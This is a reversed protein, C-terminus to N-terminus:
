MDLGPGKKIVHGGGWNKIIYLKCIGIFQYAMKTKDYMWCRGIRTCQESDRFTCSTEVTMKFILPGPISGFIRLVTYSMGLALSCLKDPVVRFICLTGPIGSFGSFIISSLLLAIFLPLKHCNADCKGLRADVIDGDQDPGTLGKHICSCNYYTQKKEQSYKSFRCGAFCPSFYEVNDRGCVSSYLATSCRCHKNCPATLNVMQGTGDYDENIGAFKVSDCHIFILVVLTVVSVASTVMVFRMLAKCSMELKSVIVGGLLQGLAGGPLLILGSIITAVTPTLIFQNELYRPLFESAGILVLSESAKSLCLLIFVPNKMLIWLAAFLDKISTGFEKDKLNDSSYTKKCKGATIKATGAINRPFCLLPILTSWAILSALLFSNWWNWWLKLNGGRGMNNRSSTSNEAVKVLPAGMAHGCAYGFIIAAEAFGLYIGSSHTDVSDYLFTVALIYLPMGAIGQVTQGLIFLFVYKSQFLSTSKPCIDLVKTEDCIDEINLKSQNNEGRLHPLGLLISGLGIFFSSYATWKTRNGRGGYYAILIAVLCSSIDYSSTLVISEFTKLHYNKQFNSISLDVLGFVIGQSSALIFYIVMFCRIDNLRQCCPFSVCGLGCSGEEQSQEPESLTEPAPPRERERIEINGLRMVSLPFLYPPKKRPKPTERAGEAKARGALAKPEVHTVSGMHSFQKSNETGPKEKICNQSNYAALSYVM